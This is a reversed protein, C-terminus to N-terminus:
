RDMMMIIAAGTKEMMWPLINQTGADGSLSIVGDWTHLQFVPRPRSRMWENTLRSSSRGGRGGLCRSAVFYM